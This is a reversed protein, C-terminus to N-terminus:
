IEKFFPQRFEPRSVKRLRLWGGTLYAVAPLLENIFDRMVHAYIRAVGPEDALDNADLWANLIVTHLLTLEVRHKQFFENEHIEILLSYFVNTIQENSCPQDRDILDDLMRATRAVMVLYRGAPANNNAALAIARHVRETNMTREATTSM